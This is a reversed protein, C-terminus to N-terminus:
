KAMDGNKNALFANRKTEQHDLGAVAGAYKYKCM